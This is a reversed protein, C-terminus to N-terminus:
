LGMRPSGLENQNPLLPPPWLDEPNAPRTSPPYTSSQQAQPQAMCTARAVWFIQSRHSLDPSLWQPVCQRTSHEGAPSGTAEAQLLSSPYGPRGDGWALCLEPMSECPTKPHCCLILPGEGNWDTPVWKWSHKPHLHQLFLGKSHSAVLKKPLPSDKSVTLHGFTAAQVKRQPIPFFLCRLKNSNGYFCVQRGRQGEAGKGAAPTAKLCWCQCLSQIEGM